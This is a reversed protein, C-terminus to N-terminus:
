IRFEGCKCQKLESRLPSYKKHPEEGCQECVFLSDFENIDRLVAEVDGRALSTSTVQRHHSGINTILQSARMQAFKKKSEKDRLTENGKLHTTIANILESAEREDNASGMRYELARVGLGEIRYKLTEEILIRCKNAAGAIDNEDLNIRIRVKLSQPSDKIDLGEEITWKLLEKFVWRGGMLDKKLLDFWLDDHTFLLFQTETFKEDLLRALPRRHGSDFSTVVDDLVLFSSAENFHKASALFLCIGLSNLHAESLIKLPPSVEQGHRKLKFEIGRGETPILRVEEIDDDPHLFVFFENVDHSVAGLVGEIGQKETEEFLEYIKNMSEIQKEFIGIKVGLKIYRDYDSKLNKLKALSDYFKREEETVVLGDRIEQVKKISVAITENFGKIEESSEIKVATANGQIRVMIDERTSIFDRVKTLIEEKDKGIVIDKLGAEIGMIGQLADKYPRVKEHVSKAEKILENREKLVGKIDEIEVRMHEVLAGSDVVSGCIPCKGEEVLKGEIAEMAAQYLKELASARITEEKKAIGNHKEMLKEVEELVGNTGAVKSLHRGILELKAIEKGKSEKTSKEELLEVIKDIDKLESVRAERDCEKILRSACEKVDKEDFEGKGIVAVLDTKRETHQGRLSALEVDSRLSNRVQLLVNRIEGVVEFGIIQEIEELKEKKTKDIFNRMTHHRLIISDKSSKALYTSFETSVSSFTNGGSRRLTKTSILEAVNFELGVSADTNKDMYSNFYDERGCGERQLYQIKDTLFWEIADSFTTKGDGNNGYLVVNKCDSGLDLRVNKRSGRFGDLTIKALKARSSM